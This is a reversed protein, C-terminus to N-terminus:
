LWPRRRHEAKADAVGVADVLELTKASVGPDIAVTSALSEIEAVGEEVIYTLDVAVPAIVGDRRGDAVGGQSCGVVAIGATAVGDVQHKCCRLKAIETRTRNGRDLAIQIIRSREAVAGNVVRRM